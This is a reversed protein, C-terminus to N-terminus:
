EGIKYSAQHSEWWKRAAGISTKLEAERVYV